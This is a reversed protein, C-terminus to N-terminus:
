AFQRQIGANSKREVSQQYEIEDSLQSNGACSATVYFVVAVFGSM